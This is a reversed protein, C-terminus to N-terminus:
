ILVRRNPISHFICFKVRFPMEAYSFSGDKRIEGEAFPWFSIKEFKKQRGHNM